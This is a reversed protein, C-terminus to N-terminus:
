VIAIPLVCTYRKAAVDVDHIKVTVGFAREMNIENLIQRAPGCQVTGDRRLIIGQDSISLAHEPYHTNVLSSIGFDDRLNQITSLVVLQNKFDLNSEPEDLVLLEPQTALARAILVMQLEGGSIRSCLKDKMHKIGIKDLSEMAVGMDAAGPKSFPRVHAGRGLLVMDLVTYAFTSLKAQPVYGIKKWIDTHRMGHIPAGDIYSAGSNWRLLGLMCKLLTTKGVGNPGLVSTVTHPALAFSVDYLTKAGKGYGFSGNRVEFTM